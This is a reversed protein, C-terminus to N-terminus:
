QSRGAISLNPNPLSPSSQSPMLSSDDGDAAVYRDPSLIRSAPFIVSATTGVNPTSVLRLSGGHLRMLGLTLPLGLGTGEYKRAGNVQRFPEIALAIETESMGIGCDAVSICLGGDSSPGAAITVVGDPHSFKVANSLLNLLIQMVRIEDAWLNPRDAPLETKLSIRAAIAAPRIIRLADDFAMALDIECEHLDLRNAEIKSMDLVDSVVNLLHQGSNYIDRAYDRYQLIATAGFLNNMIIESFGIIANLPTRLEHSMNALFLSKAADAARAQDRAAQLDAITRALADNAASLEATRQAVKQELTERAEALERTMARLSVHSRRFLRIIDQCFWILPASVAITVFITEIALDIPMGGRRRVWIWIAEHSGLAAIVAWGILIATAARM